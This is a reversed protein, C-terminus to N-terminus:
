FNELYKKDIERLTWTEVTVLHQMESTQDKFKLGTQHRFSEEEPQISSKRHCDLNLKV